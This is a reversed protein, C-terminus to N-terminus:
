EEIVSLSPEDDDTGFMKGDETYREFHGSLFSVKIPYVPLFDVETVVGEGFVKCLVKQGVEFM